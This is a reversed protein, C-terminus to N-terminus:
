WFLFSIISYCYSFLFIDHGQTTLKNRAASFSLGEFEGSHHYSDTGCLILLFLPRLHVPVILFPHDVILTSDISSVWVFCCLFPACHLSFTSGLNSVWVTLHEPHRWWFFQVLSCWLLLCPEKGAIYHSKKTVISSKTTLSTFRM